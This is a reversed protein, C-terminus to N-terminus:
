GNNNENDQEPKLDTSPRKTEGFIYAYVPANVAAVAAGINLIAHDTLFSLALLIALNAIGFSVAIKLRKNGSPTVYSILSKM